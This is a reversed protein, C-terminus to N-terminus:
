QNVLKSILQLALAHSQTVTVDNRLWSFISFTSPRSFRRPRPRALYQDRNRRTAFVLRRPRMETKHFQLFIKTESWFGCTQTKDWDQLSTQNVDRTIPMKTCQQESNLRTIFTTTANAHFISNYDTGTRLLWPGTYGLPSPEWRVCLGRPQPRAGYWTADQHM